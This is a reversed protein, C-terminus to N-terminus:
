QHTYKFSSFRSTSPPSQRIFEQTKSIPFFIFLLTKHPLGIRRKWISVLVQSVTSPENNCWKRTGKERMEEKEEGWKAKEM